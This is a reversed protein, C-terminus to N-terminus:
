LLAVFEEMRAQSLCLKSTDSANLPRVAEGGPDASGCQLRPSKRTRNLSFNGCSCAKTTTSGGGMEAAVRFHQPQRSFPFSHPLLLRSQPFTSLSGRIGFDCPAQNLYETISQAPETQVSINQGDMISFCRHKPPNMGTDDPIGRPLFLGIPLSIETSNRGKGVGFGM